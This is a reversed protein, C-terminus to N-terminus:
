LHVAEVRRRHDAAVPLTAPEAQFTCLRLVRAEDNCRSLRCLYDQSPVQGSNGDHCHRLPQQQTAYAPM